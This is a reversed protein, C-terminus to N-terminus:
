PGVEARREEDEVHPLRSHKGNPERHKRPPNDDPSVPLVVDVRTGHGERSDLQITGGLDNVIRWIVGMGLGTGEGPPKTTFFPDFVRRLVDPAMGEGEDIVSLRVQAGPERSVSSTENEAEVPVEAVEVRIAGGKNKSAYIANTLLNMLIQQLEIPDARVPAANPAVSVQLTTNTPLSLRLVKEIRYLEPEWHIAERRPEDNRAVRLVQRVYTRAQLTTEIITDIYARTEPRLTKDQQTLEAYGLIGVLFNNFDHAVGSALNALTQRKHALALESELRRRETVDVLTGLVFREDGVSIPSLGIEVAILHGDEHRANLERGTGMAREAPHEHYLTRQARHSAAFREPLLREVPQGILQARRYGLLRELGDNVLVIVGTADVIVMGLPAHDFAERILGFAVSPEKADV